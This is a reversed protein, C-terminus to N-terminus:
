SLDAAQGIMLLYARETTATDVCCYALIAAHEGDRHLRPVDAGSVVTKPQPIGLVRAVTDLSVFREDANEMSFLRIQRMTDYVPQLDGNPDLIGPLAVRHRLYANRLKPLDFGLVNHGVIVTEPSTTHDLIVRLAILLGREDGCPLVSWGPIEVADGSMGNLVITMGDTKLSLCLIPSADLLAAKGNIAEAREARKAEVTEPKWTKPPKWAGLASDVAEAPADGTEIDMVAYRAPATPHAYLPLTIDVPMTM